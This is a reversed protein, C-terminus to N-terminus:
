DTSKELERLENFEKTKLKYLNAKEVTTEKFPIDELTKINDNETILSREKVIVKSSRFDFIKEEVKWKAISTSDIPFEEIQFNFSRVISLSDNLFYFQENGFGYDGCDAKFIFLTSKKDELVKSVGCCDGWCFDNKIIEKVREKGEIENVLGSLPGSKINLNFNNLDRLEANPDLALEIKEKKNTSPNTDPFNQSESKGSCNSLLVGVIFFLLSIRM